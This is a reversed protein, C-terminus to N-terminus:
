VVFRSYVEEFEQYEGITIEQQWLSEATAGGVGGDALLLIELSLELVGSDVLRSCQGRFEGIPEEGTELDRIKIPLICSYERRVVDPEIFNVREGNVSDDSRLPWSAVGGSYREGSFETKTVIKLDKAAENGLNTLNVKVSDGDARLGGVRLDPEHDQAMIETQRKSIRRQGEYLAILLASLLIDAWVSIAEPPNLMWSPLLEAIAM